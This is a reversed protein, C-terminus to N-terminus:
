DPDSDPVLNVSPITQKEHECASLNRKCYKILKYYFRINGDLILGPERGSEGAAWHWELIASVDKLSAGGGKVSVTLWRSPKM